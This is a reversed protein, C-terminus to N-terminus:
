CSFLKSTGSNKESLIVKTLFSAYPYPYLFLSYNTSIKLEILIDTYLKIYEVFM